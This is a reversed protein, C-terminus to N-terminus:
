SINWSRSRGGPCGSCWWTSWGIWKSNQCNEDPQGSDRFFDFKCRLFLGLFIKQVWQFGQGSVFLNSSDLFSQCSGFMKFNRWWFSSWKMESAEMRFNCPIFKFNNWCEKVIRIKKQLWALVSRSAARVAKFHVKRYNQGHDLPKGSVKIKKRAEFTCRIM